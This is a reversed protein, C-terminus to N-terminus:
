FRAARESLARHGQAQMRWYKLIQKRRTRCPRARRLVDIQQRLTWIEAELTARSWLLDVLM